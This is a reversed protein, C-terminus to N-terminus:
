LQEPWEKATIKTYPPDYQCFDIRYRGSDYVVRNGINIQQSADKVLLQLTVDEQEKTPPIFMCPLSALTVTPAVSAANTEVDCTEDLAKDEYVM